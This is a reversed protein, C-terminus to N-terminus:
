QVRVEDIRFRYAGPTPGGAFAIGMVDHGDIGNFSVFPFTYEKWAPGAVFTQTLPLRGRSEAFVMVQYTGGDGRGWFRIAKAASLNVPQMPGVGRMFMVGGWAFPLGPAIVGQVELAKPSGSAGGDVVAMTATSTGGAFQDTSIMWGFGFGTKPTGDDFTSVVGLAQPAAVPVRGAAVRAAVAARDLPVGAKWVGVIARTATIDSTPDGTVLLLDARAGEAVRGRDDLKFLRAPVSTAAALADGPTLGARVLLELERHLAIGHATGPNPADTGALIPVHTALLQRVAAEATAYRRPPSGAPVPFAGGITARGNADLYPALQPNAALDGAGSTGTVSRLVTLTPVVFAHHAAVFAGFDPDPAHDVFLHELGDAGADIAARADSLTGIHVVALKGRAHAARVVAGLTARSARGYATGDDYIIKIYDSGEALRADVFAQASDPNGLTPIAFGYETGHGKPATVLVGASYFDARTTVPGARQETRLRAGATPDSFMDLETTVGFALAQQLADGFVHTHADILGPLLRRGTGDVIVAGPPPPVTEGITAIRGDRLLVDRTGLVRTGDFVRVHGILTPTAVAQASARPTEGCAAAVVLLATALRTATRPRISRGASRPM